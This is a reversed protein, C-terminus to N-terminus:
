RCVSTQIIGHFRFFDRDIGYRADFAVRFDRKLQIVLALHAVRLKVHVFEAAELFEALSTKEGFHRIDCRANAANARNAMGDGAGFSTLHNHVDCNRGRSNQDPAKQMQPLDNGRVRETKKM